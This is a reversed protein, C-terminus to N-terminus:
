EIAKFNYVPKIIKQIEVTPEINDIIERIPKYANPAEDLTNQGVTTSYVDVMQSEFEKLSLTRKAENRGMVRGAGHPASNNWDDNGKGIALISGDRMNIPIILREGSYASVAGKRIINDEFDIYNHITQFGDFNSSHAGLLNELIIDAIVSRNLFAYEQCIQMDHLYHERQEGILFCLDAPYIPHSNKFHEDYQKLVSPIDYGRKEERLGVILKQRHEKYEVGGNKWFDIAVHQYYDAVQKGLNRSGSHIVLYNNGEDDKDLEIFHNGGGLSGIANEFTGTNRLEGFCYMEYIKNFKAVRNDRVKRGSPIYSHLIEDLFNLDFNGQGIEIVNMGCGIDVGVLNPVVKDGLNATFGIVCGAGAHTDPMIRIKGGDVFDQNLLNIIQSVATEEINDTFVKAENYKGTLTIM